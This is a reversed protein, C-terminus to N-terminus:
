PTEILKAEANRRNRMGQEISTGVWVRIMRRVCAAIATYNKAKILPELERMERRNDGIKSAGRNYVLSLIADRANPRLDEFGPYAKKCIAYFRPVDVKNFVEFGLSKPTHIDKVERLHAKAKVGTYPYTAALRQPAPAPLGAWDLVSVKPSVTSWDYGLATTIGSGGGPYDPYFDFGEWEVILAMGKPGM